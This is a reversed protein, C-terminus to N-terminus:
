EDAFCYGVGRVTLLYVPNAPDPEIKQRIRNVHSSVAKEYGVVDYGFVQSNMEERSFPRGPRRALVALLDYERATLDLLEGNRYVRRKEFEIRLKKHELVDGEVSASRGSRRLVAKLRAKLEMPNFPKTIYDDAGLELLLIRNTIDTQGTVMIIPLKTDQERLRKCVEVGGLSPLAIDLLVFAYDGEVAQQLGKAGDGARDSDYGIDNLEMQLLEAFAEDDEIILAKGNMREWLPAADSMRCLGGDSFVKQNNM